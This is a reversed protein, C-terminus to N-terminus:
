ADRTVGIPIGAAGLPDLFDVEVSDVFAERAALFRRIHPQQEHRDFAERDVYLEYFIRQLPQGEVAHSVYVLTGPEQERIGVLTETVLADFSRVATEDRATFRVNLGFAMESSGEDLLLCDEM